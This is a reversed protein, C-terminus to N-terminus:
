FASTLSFNRVCAQEFQKTSDSIIQDIRKEIPNASCASVALLAMFVTSIRVM